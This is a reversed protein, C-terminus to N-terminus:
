QRVWTKKGIYLQASLKKKELDIIKYEINWYIHAKWPMSEDVEGKFDDWTVM